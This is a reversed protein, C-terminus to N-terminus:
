SAHQSHDSSWNKPVAVPNAKVFNLQKIGTVLEPLKEYTVISDIKKINLKLISKSCLSSTKWDYCDKFYYVSCVICYIICM